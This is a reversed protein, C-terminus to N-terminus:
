LVVEVIVNTGKGPASEIHCTGGVAEARETMTQLGWRQHEGPQAPCQHTFGIGNDAIIMRVVQGKEEMGEKVTIKVWTAKAHRAVNTLAEQTIRFLATEVFLSLRSVPEPDHVTAVIHTRTTFEDVYWRLAAVLGYEELAPPRLNDMVNRIRTTIDNVLNSTDVLRTFLRDALEQDHVASPIQTQLIKLNISLATLNQGAQDHLERALRQREAEETETLRVTLARLQERAAREAAYLRANEIAISAAAVLPELLALDQTDFRGVETDVVQLVGIVDQKVRLPITAISRLWLETQQDITEFYRKDALTDPVILSVGNLAVWGAIGDGPPLRWGRVIENKPGTAQQCVLEGTESDILWISCAIVRMLRRVEELITLFVQDLDLTSSFAQGAQNLLALERHRQRLANEARKRKTIDRNSARRGLYEGASSCVPQCIHNIWREEGNRAIVRFEVNCVQEKELEVRAHQTILDLDDPHTIQILLKPVKVFEDPRYGTIRECAPSVYVFHGNLDIWYEWDYTFDAVTRFREESARLEATRKEVLEELHERHGQLEEQLQAQETVNALTLILGTTVGEVDKIPILSWDWYSIGREPHEAYEFPKAYAWYPEGTEVVRRFIDENEADPYLDFHNKGPFFSPEREDAQAYALNVQIFDFEPDLYAVLIHTHDFVTALLRNVELAAVEAQKREAIEHELQKQMARLALHTEVRALMEEIHFPKTVYDIGGVSFAKTKNIVQGAASLFIVPIDRTQEDAKLQECVQYGDMRPMMIDLIVLDPRESHAQNIAEQGNSAIVVEYSEIAFTHQLATLLGLDDDVILIKSTM